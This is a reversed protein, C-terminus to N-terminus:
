NASQPRPQEARPPRGLISPSFGTGLACVQSLGCVCRFTVIMGRALGDQASWRYNLCLDRRLSQNYEANLYPYMSAGSILTLQAVSSNFMVFLPIWTAWGFLYASFRRVFIPPNRLRSWTSGGAM